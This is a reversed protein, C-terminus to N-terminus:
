HRELRKLTVDVSHNFNVRTHFFFYHQWMKFFSTEFVFAPNINTQAGPYLAILIENM